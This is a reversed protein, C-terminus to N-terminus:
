KEYYYCLASDWSCEIRIIKKLRLRLGYLARTSLVVRLHTMANLLVVLKLLMEQTFCVSNIFIVNAQTFPIDFFSGQLFTVQRDTFLAPLDKKCQSLARSAQEHQSSVIEIGIVEKAHTLLFFQLVIQGIGSGLDVVVDEDKIQLVHILKSISPYLVEGSTQAITTTSQVKSKKNYLYALYRQYATNESM